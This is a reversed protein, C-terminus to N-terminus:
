FAGAFSLSFILDLSLFLPFTIVCSELRYWVTIVSELWELLGNGSEVELEV